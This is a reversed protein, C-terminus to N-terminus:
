RTDGTELPRTSSTGRLRSATQQFALSVQRPTALQALFFLPLYLALLGLKLAFTSWAIDDGFVTGAAIVLLTMIVISVGAGFRYPIRYLQQSRYFLYIPTLAQSILTAVASGVKGFHPVLAFNLAINLMAASVMAIGTPRTTKVIAPGTAAIYTLGIMVWSLALIGVVSSAGAYQKTALVHIIEPAFLSLGASIACTVWLYYLFVTAYTDRSDSQTYISLSFPGWAQQFAGTILAVGAALSSGISYLGVQATNTYAQVFYRDAFGVVWYGLGAPIVPLAYRLMEKLRGLHVYVPAIWDRLMLVATASAIAFGIVQAAYVGTLGWRLGVALLLTLAITLLNTGLGYFTTSWPRRQMRLWNTLVTNFTMLPLTLAALRFFIGADRRGVIWQGLQNGLLFVVGGIVTAVALQCWAWSSISRRRDGDDTTDWFWRHAAGDLGLVVFIQLVSISSSVLSLVGYDTPTFLRTYVPVLFLTLFRSIIGSLGYVVSESAISKLRAKM